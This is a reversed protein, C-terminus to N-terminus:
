RKAWKSEGPCQFDISGPNQKEQCIEPKKRNAVQQTAAVRCPVSKRRLFNVEPFKRLNGTKEAKFIDVKFIKVVTGTSGPKECLPLWLDGAQSVFARNTASFAVSRQKCLAKSHNIICTFDFSLPSYCHCCTVNQFLQPLFM